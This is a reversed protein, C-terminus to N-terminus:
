NEAASDPPEPMAVFILGLNAIPQTMYLRGQYVFRTESTGVADLYDKPLFVDPQVGAVLGFMELGMLTRDLVENMTGRMPVLLSAREIEDGEGIVEMMFAPHKKVTCRTRTRGEGADETSREECRDLLGADETSREECRDLLPQLTSAAPATPPSQGGTAGQGDDRFFYSVAVLLVCLLAASGAVTALSPGQSKKSEM